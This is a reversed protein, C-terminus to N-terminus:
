QKDSKSIKTKKIPFFYNVASSVLEDFKAYKGEFDPISLVDAWDYASIWQGFLRLNSDRLDRKLVSSNVQNPPKNLYSKILITNHDSRGIPPLKLPEFITKKMNTLCLDLISNDRTTVLIIQSLGALRKVRNVNFGTSTPNFDGTVLVLADPHNRLFADVNSQIHNYLDWNESAGCSTTQYIVAVLIISISRPLRKPRLSLWLSEIKPNEFETLRKCTIDCSVYTCVGGGTSFERDNRFLFFNPLLLASDPINGADVM